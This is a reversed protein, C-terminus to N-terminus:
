QLRWLSLHERGLGTMASLAVRTTTSANRKAEGAVRECSARAAFKDFARSDTIGRGKCM